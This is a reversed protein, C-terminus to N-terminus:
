GPRDSTTPVPTWRRGSVSASGSAPDAAAWSGAFGPGAQLLDLEWRGGARSLLKRGELDRVADELDRPHGCTERVVREAVGEAWTRSGLAELM